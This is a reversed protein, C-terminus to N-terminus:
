RARLKNEIQKQIKKLDLDKNENDSVTNGSKLDITHYSLQKGWVPLIKFINKIAKM